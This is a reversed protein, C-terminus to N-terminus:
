IETVFIRFKLRHLNQNNQTSKISGGVDIISVGINAKGSKESSDSVELAIDFEVYEGNINKGSHIQGSMQFRNNIVNAEEVGQIISLLTNSIFQKLESLTENPPTDNVFDSSKVFLIRIGVLRM